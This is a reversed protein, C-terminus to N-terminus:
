TLVFWIGNHKGHIRLQFCSLVFTFVNSQWSPECMKYYRQNNTQCFIWLNFLNHLSHLWDNERAILKIRKLNVHIINVSVPSFKVFSLNIIWNSLVFIDIWVFFINWEKDSQFSISISVFCLCKVTWLNFKTEPPTSLIDLSQVLHASTAFLLNSVYLLRLTFLKTARLLASQNNSHLQLKSPSLRPERAM